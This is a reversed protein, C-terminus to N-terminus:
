SSQFLFKWWRQSNSEPPDAPQDTETASPQQADPLGPIVLVREGPRQLNLRTRAAGEQATASQLSAMVQKLNNTASAAQSIERALQDLEQRVAAYRAVERGVATSVLGALILLGVTLARSRFAQRLRDRYRIRRM